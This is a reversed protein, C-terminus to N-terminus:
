FLPVTATKSLGYCDFRGLVPTEVVSKEIFLCFRNKSEGGDATSLSEVHIYPLKCEGSKGEAVLYALVEEYPKELHDARRKAKNHVSKVQKRKFCAHQTINAPIAKISTVHCYDSFRSLWEQIGCAQLRSESESLLRLKDGLPFAKDGYRVISLAIESQNDGVKNEVLALHVQQFIKQWLFGLAAEADPLLTIDQYYNM